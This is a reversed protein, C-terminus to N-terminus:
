SVPIEAGENPGDHWVNNSWRNGSNDSNFYAVPGFAGGNAYYMTSILNNTVIINTAPIGSYEAGSEGGYICYAGGALLNGNLSSERVRRNSELVDVPHDSM